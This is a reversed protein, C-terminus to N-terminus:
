LLQDLYPDKPSTEGLYGSVSQSVGSVFNSVMSSGWVLWGSQAALQNAEVMNTQKEEVMDLWRKAMFERIAQVGKNVIEKPPVLLPNENLDLKTLNELRAFRDPLARIQNNSLDLERLNILDGIEEPLEELDSFNSSLNLVELNTLRGIARPLGRLMNFHVDLFRLSKMECISPPLLRIKNLQVSLRELNVLGYGINAPLSVLNNFSADIEVLSSSLAISEPLAKVKNASVNLIKLNQLLGISDPLFVLLNSSVDLEVLKELGAISDPLVELQNQSLNLVLLGHLRGISEPILRLQRASLNVREVAGGSEAERLIAVVEEDVQEGSEIERVVVDRYVGVLMEEVEKLQREYEEHMEELKLVAKYIETKGPEQMLTLNSRAMSVVDPNPRPGLSKLILFINTASSPIAQTLSSLVEPYNLYPFQASLNQDFQQSNPDTQSLLYSLIPFDDYKKSISDMEM